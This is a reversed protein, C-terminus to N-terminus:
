VRYLMSAALQRLRINQRDNKLGSKKLGSLTGLGTLTEQTSENEYIGM